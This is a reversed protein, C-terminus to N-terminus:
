NRLAEATCSPPNALGQCRRMDLSTRLRPVAPALGPCHPMAMCGEMGTLVPGLGGAGVGLGGDGGAGGVGGSGLGTAHSSVVDQGFPASSTVNTLTRLNIYISLQEKTAHKPDDAKYGDARESSCAPGKAHQSM